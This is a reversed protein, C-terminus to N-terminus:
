DDQELWTQNLDTSVKWAVIKHRRLQRYTQVFDFVSIVSTTIAVTTLRETFGLWISQETLGSWKLLFLIGTLLVFCIATVISLWYNKGNLARAEALHDVIVRGAIIEHTDGKELIEVRRSKISYVPDRTDTPKTLQRILVECAELLKELNPNILRFKVSGTNRQTLVVDTQTDQLRFFYVLYEREDVATEPMLRWLSETAEAYTRKRRGNGDPTEASSDAVLNVDEWGNAKLSNLFDTTSALAGQAKRNLSVTFIARM